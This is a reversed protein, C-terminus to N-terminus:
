VLHRALFDRSRANALDASAKDYHMGDPRAFAHEQDAYVHTTINAYPQMAAIIKAQAAPPVYQDAGAIHMLLPCQIDAAPALDNEIGVGYYSVAADIDTHCAMLYSLRGGLCYGLCAAKGNNGPLARLFQLSAKLDEIGKSQDFSNYLAFAKAWEAESKDSLQVGPEIRWFLDPCLAHYGLSAMDDCLSRMGANVGFIEQILIVSGGNPKDPKALYADFSGSGDTANIKEM